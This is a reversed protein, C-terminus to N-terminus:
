TSQPSFTDSVGVSCLVTSLFGMGGVSGVTGTKNVWRDWAYAFAEIWGKSALAEVLIFISLVYPVLAFPLRMM